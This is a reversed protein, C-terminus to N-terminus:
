GYVFKLSKEIVQLIFDLSGPMVLFARQSRGGTWREPRKVTNWVRSVGSYRLM